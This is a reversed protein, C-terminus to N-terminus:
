GCSCWSFRLWAAALDGCHAAVLQPSIMSGGFLSSFQMGTGVLRPVDLAALYLGLLAAAKELVCDLLMCAKEGRLCGRYVILSVFKTLVLFWGGTGKAALVLYRGSNNWHSDVQAQFGLALAKCGPLGVGQAAIAWSTSRNLSRLYRAVWDFMCGHM